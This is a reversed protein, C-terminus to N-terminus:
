NVLIRRIKSKIRNKIIHISSIRQFLQAIDNISWNTQNILWFCLRREWPKSVSHYYSPNCRTADSLTTELLSISKNDIACQGKETNVILLGVGKNDDFVPHVGEIGWFDAITLDSKSRGNKSPCHYCSPRLTANSLFLHMFPDKGFTHSLTGNSTIDSSQSESFSLVFSYNKWGTHKDRFSISKIPSDTTRSVSKLNIVNNTIDTLYRKWVLPSPVGHCIVDITLLNDYDHGLFSHLGAIQCSTGTFLVKRGSKLFTRAEAYSDGIRSQVYKSGIFDILGEETDAYSHFVNWNEDFRAGFVVGGDQIIKKAFVIFLGGSSSMLLEQENNNKAAYVKLPIRAEAQNLVPCVNECIGCSICQEINVHPYLFGESDEQLSICHQPCRQVCATCGCCKEKQRIEIM